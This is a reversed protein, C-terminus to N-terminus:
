EWQDLEDDGLEDFLEDPVTIPLFGLTRAPPEVIPVLKALPKGSRAITVDEGAVAADLIKSLKAKAEAINVVIAM